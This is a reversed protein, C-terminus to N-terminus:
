KLNPIIFKSKRNAVRWKAVITCGNDKIIGISRVDM